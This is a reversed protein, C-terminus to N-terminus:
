SKKLKQGLLMIPAAVYISSYTGVTIGIGLVLAFDSIVGGAFFFLSGVAFVITLSTLITRTLMQNISLNIINELSADKLLNRNERIRDFNIITDNLSLGIITLVAALIQINVEKGILSYLGVAIAVDHFLSFIAGPAYEYDFRLGIYILILLLSYFMALLANKKLQSGVQPGVTDIRRIEFQSEGFTETFAKRLSAVRAKNEENQASDSKTDDNQFRFLFEEAEGFAQVQAEGLGLGDVIKRVQAANTDVKFLVQVETGGAFDIGYNLGKTFVTFLALGVLVISLVTFLSIKSVFDIKGFEKNRM